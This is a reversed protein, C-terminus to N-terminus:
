FVEANWIHLFSGSYGQISVFVSGVETGLSTLAYEASTKSSFRHIETQGFM